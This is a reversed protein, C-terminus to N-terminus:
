LHLDLIKKMADMNYFVGNTKVTNAKKLDFVPFMDQLVSTFGFKGSLYEALYEQEPQGPTPILLATNGTVILDMVSSYGSRCVIYEASNIYHLFEQDNCHNIFSINGKDTLKEKSEPLGRIILTTKDTGSFKKILLHELISRQPEPGSVICVVDYENKNLTEPELVSFRSIPGIYSLAPYYNNKSLRGSINSEGEIDPIWCYNYVNIIQRHIKTYLSSFFGGKLSCFVNVQHTIYISKIKRSFVGPRNDSIITDIKHAKIAKATLHRERILNIIMLFVCFYFSFGMAKKAGYHMSPSPINVFVLDPYKSKLLEISAGNGALVVKKGSKLCYDIVPIIRSAHGLGWNLPSILINQSAEM